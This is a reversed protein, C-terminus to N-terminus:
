VVLCDLRQWYCSVSLLSGTGTSLYSWEAASVQPELVKALSDSRPGSMLHAAVKCTYFQHLGTSESLPPKRQDLKVM